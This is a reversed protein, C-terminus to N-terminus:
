AKVHRPTKIIEFFLLLTPVGFQLPVLWGTYIDYHGHEGMWFRVYYLLTTVCLAAAGCSPAFPILFAFWIVYWPFGTPSLLFLLLTLALMAKPLNLSYLKAAMGFSMAALSIILAIIGRAALPSHVTLYSLTKEVLPFIFSSRQWTTSYASLGSSGHINVLMPLCLIVSMVGFFLGYFLYQSLQKTYQRFLVPGLILPWLKISVACALMLGALLPRKSVTLIASLLFPVLLIDMHAANFGTFIVIPNLAYLAAWLPSRDYLALAKVMLFLAIAESLLFLARLADLDFPKMLAALMFVSQAVPPYITTLHANNIGDVFNGNEISLTQLTSLDRTQQTSLFDDNIVGQSINKPSYAYPNIRHAAAAGDWLYRNWDDEYIPTSGFFMARLMLGFLIAMLAFRGQQPIPRGRKLQRKILPIFCLWMVGAGILLSALLSVPHDKTTTGVRFDIAIIRISILTLGILISGAIFPIKFAKFIPSAERCHTM